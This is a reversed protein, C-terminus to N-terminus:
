QLLGFSRATPEGHEAKTYLLPYAYQLAQRHLTVDECDADFAFLAFASEFTGNLMRVGCMYDNAYILPIGLTNGEIVSGICGKNFVAMGQTDDRMALWYVGQLYCPSAFCVDHPVRHDVLVKKGEYWFDEPEPIQDDWDAISFPLDRVMRRDKKLCLHTVFRLKNEHVSGNVVYDTHIGKTIGTRGVREGHLEFSTKCDIRPSDATLMMTFRCPLPGIRGEFVATASYASATVTWKGAACLEQDEIVGRFLEGEGNEAIRRHTRLDDIFCIGKGSLGIRYVPTELIGSAADYTM